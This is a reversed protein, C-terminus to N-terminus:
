PLACVPWNRRLPKPCSPPRTCSWRLPPCPPVDSWFGDLLDTEAKLQVGKPALAQQLQRQATRSLMDPAVGVVAGEHLTDALMDVHSRVKGLKQLEIGTGALQAAAQEWYRSDVWVGATTATVVLTGVSGTFGSVWKRGHWHEPMYESMHPDASPVIWADYGHQKMAQRLAALRQAPTSLSSAPTASATM